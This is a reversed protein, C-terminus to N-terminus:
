NAELLNPNDHTNGLLTAKSLFIMSKHEGGHIGHLYFRAVEDRWRIEYKDTYNKINYVNGKYGDFGAKDTLGTFMGVSAKFVSIASDHHTEIYASGSIWRLNGYVWGKGNVRKGRFKLERM